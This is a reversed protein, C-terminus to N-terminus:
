RELRVSLRLLIQRGRGPLGAHGGFYPQPFAEAQDLLDHAAVGVDLGRVGIDRATVALGLLAENPLRSPVDLNARTYGYRDLSWALTPTIRLWDLPKFTVRATIKHRPGGLLSNTGPVEYDEVPAGVRQYYSYTLWGGLMEAADWRFQLEIGATETRDRNFYTEDGTSEDFFYIIPDNIWTLFGNATLAARDSFIYGLEAELVTTREPKIENNPDIAAEISKNAFSPMRFAQAALLKAHLGFDFVKTLALRPAAVAGFVSHFEARTGLTLNVWRNPWLFQGFVATTFFEISDTLNGDDDIYGNEALFAPDNASRDGDAVEGRDYFSEVGVVINADGFADWSLMLGGRVRHLARQLYLQFDLLEQLRATDGDDVETFYSQQRKYSLHPTLTLRETLKFDTTLDTYIGGHRYTYANQTVADFADRSELQYGDYMVRLQLDQYGVSGRLILPRLNSHAGMDYSNAVTDGVLPTYTADSRVSRGVFVGLTWNLDGHTMGAEATVDLFGAPDGGDNSYFDEPPAHRVTVSAGELTAANRTEVRIVGLAANGGYIASGPGRIIEIRDLMEVPFHHGFSLTQFDLDNIEHGDVILLIKGEHGWNGRTGIGVAGQVDVGFFFGPVMRLVDILDRAGWDLMEERTVVTVIGPSERISTAKVSAVSVELSLLTDLNLDEFGEGAPALNAAQPQQDPAAFSRVSVAAGFATTVLAAVIRM